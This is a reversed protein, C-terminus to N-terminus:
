SKNIIKEFGFNSAQEVKSKSIEILSKSDNLISSFISVYKKYVHNKKVDFTIKKAAFSNKQINETEYENIKPELSIKM